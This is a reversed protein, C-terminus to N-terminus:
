LSATQMPQVTGGLATIRGELKIQYKALFMDANHLIEDAFSGAYILALLLLYKCVCWKKDKSSVQEISVGELLEQKLQKLSYEM